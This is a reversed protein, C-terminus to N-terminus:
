YQRNPIPHTADKKCRLSHEPQHAKYFDIDRYIQLYLGSQSNVGMVAVKSKEINWMFLNVSDGSPDNDPIEIWTGESPFISATIPQNGTRQLTVSFGDCSYNLTTVTPAAFVVNWIASTLMVFSVLMATLFIKAGITYRKHSVM